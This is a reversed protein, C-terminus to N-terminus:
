PMPPLIDSWTMGSALDARARLFFALGLPIVSSLFLTFGLGSQQLKSQMQAAAPRNSLTGAMGAGPLMPNAPRGRNGLSLMASVVWNGFGVLSLAMSFGLPYARFLAPWLLLAIVIQAGGALLMKIATDRLNGLLTEMPKQWGSPLWRM